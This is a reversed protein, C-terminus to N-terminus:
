QTSTEESKHLRNTLLRVVSVAEPQSSNRAEQVLRDEVLKAYGQIDVWSDLHDPNGNVIRAMKTAIMELAQKQDPQLRDWGPHGQLSAKIAQALSADLFFSGYNAGREQLMENINAM